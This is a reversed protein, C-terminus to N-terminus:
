QITEKTQYSRLSQEFLRRCDDPISVSQLTKLNVCVVSVDAVARLEGQHRLVYHFGASSRGLRSVAVEIAICEGFRLPKKFQIHVDVAPFGLDEDLLEAYPRGIFGEFFEEFAVHLYGVITPYYAIGARDVDSFRVKVEAQFTM